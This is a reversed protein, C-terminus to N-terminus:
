MGSAQGPDRSSIGPISSQPSVQPIKVKGLFIQCEGYVRDIIVSFDAKKRDYISLFKLSKKKSVVERIGLQQFDLDRGQFGGLFLIYFLTTLCMTM